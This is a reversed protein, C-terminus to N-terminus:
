FNVIKESQELHLRYEKMGDKYSLYEHGLKHNEVSIKFMYTIHRALEKWAFFLSHKPDYIHTPESAAGNLEVLQFNKGNEFEEWTNYMIDLRGFYFGDIQLCMENMVNEIKDSNWHSADIFKAGRAHNGFPVLNLKEGIPLVEKLKSGYESKLSNLQLRFRPNQKILKEISAKGNGEVILFEKAVIGTVRGKNEHPFRVYFIGVENEFPILNQILYNFNAKSHYLLLDDLNSIKKVASGRLGIDPKAILPFKITSTNVIAIVKEFSIQGQILATEPFYKQPIIDYIKKKSENIFGGNQISPNCANFFFLSRAKLSYYAWLFYIPIYVIKFPWYEWHTLKYLFQKM